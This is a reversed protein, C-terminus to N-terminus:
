TVFAKVKFEPQDWQRTALIRSLIKSAKAADKQSIFLPNFGFRLFNPKRFDGIVGNKKLCQMLPYAEDFTYALHSGRKNADRPSILEIEPCNKTTQEIFFNTLRISERRIKEITVLDFVQLAEELANMAIIPPTGIQMRDIGSASVFDKEFNFPSKHGLWGSIINKVKKHHKPAVYLFAPSGPGGNLYKYTCGVAFDAKSKELEIPLVGISHALDWITVAGMQHAKKTLNILDHKRGTRFDVETLFLIGVDENIHDFVEDPEVIRIAYNLDLSKLLGDAIYLDSPFNGSDSLILSKNPKIQIASYLAQFTKISLTEGVVISGTPAGVLTALMNGVTKPKLIWNDDNWGRVLHKAWKETIFKKNERSITKTPPGLSNGDLYIIDKPIDFLSRIEDFTHMM